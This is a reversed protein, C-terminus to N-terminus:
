YMVHQIMNHLKQFDSCQTITTLLRLIDTVNICDSKDLLNMIEGSSSILDTWPSQNNMFCHQSANNRKWDKVEEKIIDQTM